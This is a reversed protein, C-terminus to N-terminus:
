PVMLEIDTAKNRRSKEDAVVNFRVKLGESINQIGTSRELDNGHVFVDRINVDKDGQHSTVALFGFYREPKWTKLYGEYEHTWNVNLFEL